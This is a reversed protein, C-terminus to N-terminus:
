AVSKIKERLWKNVLRRSPIKHKRALQRLSMAVEHDLEVFDRSKRLDFSFGAPTLRDEYDAMDASEFWEAAEEYTEFHLRKNKVM